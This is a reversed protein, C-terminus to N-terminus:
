FEESTAQTCGKLGILSIERNIIIKKDSQRRAREAAHVSLDAFLDAREYLAQIGAALGDADEASALIGCSEDVFEPIAAVANTVPVLGSAMAEDRSVGQSDWRTPVLFVGYEKHLAAIEVHTLFRREITVNSFKRLPSLTEDFLKGDGVMRFEMDSFCPSESLKLIAKVSLDNAYQRSAYPRISLVRKRQEVLKARYFFQETDIPNHIVTYCDSPLRIGLDEFVEETFYLSVFVLKLNSALPKLIGQWFAMRRESERMAKAREQENQYNYDRRHWPQIEAGHVWVIRQLKPYNKLVEWMEPSLFHVLVSRYNGSDLMKALAAQGGTVVDVNQFEHYSTAGNPRLRFVDVQVGREQYSKVRSHVFGNRYLDDYSPYHNTLLLIDSRGLLRAPELKRHAWMLSRIITTGSGLIRWGMRVFATGAPISANHNRNATHIVHSIRQKKDDLFIFVYQVDLGPTADLHTTMTNKAPIVGALLDQGVYIYEHKGDPLSSQICLGGSNVEISIQPHKIQGFIDGFRTANWQPLRSEDLVAPPIAEATQIITDITLGSDIKLDDVRAIVMALDNAQRGNECYNFPDIALGPLDYMEPLQHELWPLLADESRFSKAHIASARAPLHVGPLYARRPALLRIGDISWQYRTAKGVVQYDCYPSAIALDLLYNPGYYDDASMLALWEDQEIHHSLPALSAEDLGLIKITGDDPTAWQEGAMDFKKVILLRKLAYRQTQYNEIVRRYEEQSGVLAVAVMGPLKREGCWGLAKRAVYALRHEYTHELMVKRLAALRFKQEYEEDMRKLREVIEKGNDSAIVLDGFMLRLGRSFNSVTITNSGLLEYVRRAFMTQSQKISNLNIAYRYGKYAKDIENFPLTGVVYPTYEPPFQYNVDNKGFNRDFIELPRYKPFKIVYDELDRTREPYRVYYAGAFCFADKRPYLEIPNHIKPQCAFPLLSIREHGLALKYRAICDIDTTFVYDFQQATTLFTEFHIPDEKNWFVTPVQHKKCWQLAAKLETSLIGIKRNWLEDKGRWASEIFLLDPDFVELEDIVKDPTLPLLNCEPEYCHFTFEDMVCAVKIDQLPLHACNRRSHLVRLRKECLWINARFYSEGLQRALKRYCDLALVYNGRAYEDAARRVLSHQLSLREM